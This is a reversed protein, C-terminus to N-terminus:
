PLHSVLEAMWSAVRSLLAALHILGPQWPTDAAAVLGLASAVIVAVLRAAIILTGVLSIVAVILGELARVLATLNEIIRTMTGTPRPPSSRPDIDM